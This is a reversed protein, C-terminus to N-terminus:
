ADMALRRKLLASAVALGVVLVGLAIGLATFFNLASLEAVVISRLSELLYSMPNLTAAAKFWGEMLSRPFYASSLFLLAFFLPFSGETAEASGTKIALAVSISGVGAALAAAVIAVALMGALGGEVSLGFISTVAFYIWAQCFGLAATGALRGALISTRAVPSAILREFFGGEIDEAMGSGASISGFIVGQIVATAVAFQLFSDVEPFGEISISRELSSSTLALFMLPFLLSPVFSTPKRLTGFMARRSLALYQAAAAAATNM